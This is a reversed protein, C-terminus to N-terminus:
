CLCLWQCLRSLGHRLLHKGPLELDQSRLHYWYEDIKCSANIARAVAVSRSKTRLSYAIKASSYNNRQDVPIRRTFYYIGEKVFVHKFSIDEM